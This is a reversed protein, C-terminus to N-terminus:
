HPKSQDLGAGHADTVEGSGALIRSESGFKHYDSFTFDNVLTEFPGYMIFPIGWDRMFKLTRGRSVSVSRLPVVYRKGGIEVPGYDIMQASRILPARPDRDQDLDAEIALRMIAGHSPDVALEGKYAPKTRYISTGDQQPLCCYTVEFIPVTSPIAFRFVALKGQESKEWRSWTVTSQGDAVASLVSAAVPGFSGRTDLARERGRLLRKRNSKEADVVEVGSRYQVTGRSTFAARM